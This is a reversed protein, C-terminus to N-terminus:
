VVLTFRKSSTCAARRGTSRQFACDPQYRAATSDEGVQGNHLVDRPNPARKEFDSLRVGTRTRRFRGRQRKSGLWVVMSKRCIAARKGAGASFSRCGGVNRERMAVFDWPANGAVCWSDRAKVIALVLVHVHHRSGVIRSRTNTILTNTVRKGCRSPSRPPRRQIESPSQQGIEAENRQQDRQRRESKV